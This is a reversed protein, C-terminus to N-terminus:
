PYLRKRTWEGDQLTFCFRDHLRSEQGYWFEIMDPIVRYGSWHPPRPVDAGAFKQEYKAVRQELTARSDLEESQMSAWAGVQSGRPRSAFYADAEADTVPEVKGEILV